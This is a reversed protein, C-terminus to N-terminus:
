NEYNMIRNLKKARLKRKEKKITDILLEEIEPSFSCFQLLNTWLKSDLEFNSDSYTINKNKM